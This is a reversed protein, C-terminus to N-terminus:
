RTHLPINLILYILKEVRYNHKGTSCKMDRLTSEQLEVVDGTHLFYMQILKDSDFLIVMKEILWSIVYM